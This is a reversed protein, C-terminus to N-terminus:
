WSRVMCSAHHSLLAQLYTWQSCICGSRGPPTHTRQGATLKSQEVRGHVWACMYVYVCVCM